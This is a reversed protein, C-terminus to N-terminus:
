VVWRAARHASEPRDLCAKSVLRLHVPQGRRQVEVWLLEADLVRQARSRHQRGTLRDGAGRRYAFAQLAKPVQRQRYLLRWEVAIRHEKRTAGAVDTVTFRDLAADAHRDAVLVQRVAFTEVVRGFG